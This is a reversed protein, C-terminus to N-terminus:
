FYVPFRYQASNQCKHQPAHGGRAHLPWMAPSDLGTTPQSTTVGACGPFIGCVRARASCARTQTSDSCKRDGSGPRHRRRAMAVWHVDARCCDLLSIWKRRTPKPELQCHGEGSNWGCAGKGLGMQRMRSDPLCHEASDVLIHGHALGPQAPECPRGCLRRQVSVPCNPRVEGSSVPRGVTKRPHAYGGIAPWIEALDSWVPWRRCSTPRLVGFVSAATCCCAVLESFARHVGVRCGGFFLHRVMIIRRRAFEFFGLVM